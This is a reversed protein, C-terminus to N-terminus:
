AYSIHYHHLTCLEWRDAPHKAPPDPWGHHGEMVSAASCCKTHTFTYSLAVDFIRRTGTPYPLTRSYPRRTNLLRTGHLNKKKLSKQLDSGYSNVRKHCDYLKLNLL